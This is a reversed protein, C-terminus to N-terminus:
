ECNEPCYAKPNPGNRLLLIAGDKKGQDGGEFILFINESNTDYGFSFNITTLKSPMSEIIALLAAVDIKGGLTKGFHDQQYKNALLKYTNENIWEITPEVFIYQSDARSDHHAFGTKLHNATNNEEASPEPSKILIGLQGFKPEKYFKFSILGKKNKINKLLDHLEKKGISGGRNVSPFNEEFAKIAEWYAQKNLTTALKYEQGCAICFLLLAFCLIQNLPYFNPTIRKM